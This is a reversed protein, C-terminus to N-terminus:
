YLKFKIRTEGNDMPKENLYNASYMLYRDNNGRRFTILTESPENDAFYVGSLFTITGIM